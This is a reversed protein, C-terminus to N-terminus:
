AKILGRALVVIVVGPVLWPTEREIFGMWYCPAALAVAGALVVWTRTSPRGRFGNAGVAALLVYAPFVLGYFAMFARYTIEFLSLGAYAFDKGLIVPLVAALMFAVGLVGVGTLLVGRTGGDAAAGTRVHLVATFVIQAIMYGAILPSIARLPDAPNAALAARGYVFTLLLFAPFLVLFGVLFAKAGGPGPVSQRAAHFTLDLYPSLAFGLVCVPALCLLDLAGETPVSPAATAAGGGGWLWVGAVVASGALMVFSAVSRVGFKPKAALMGLVVGVGIGGALAASPLALGPVSLDLMWLAFFVQFAATVFSFARCAAFHGQLFRESAGPRWLFVGMAAAGVCNPVAFVVFSWFGFDRLLLIPLYLGICWAWSCALFAAYALPRISVKM